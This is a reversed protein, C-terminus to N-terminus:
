ENAALEAAVRDPSLQLHEAVLGNRIEIIFQSIAAADPANARAEIALDCETDLGMSRNNLNASGIRLLRDDIALVKAHVYIPAGSDTVPQYIRLRGYRDAHALYALLRTRAARMAKDALWGHSRHAIIVVVEPGDREQLRRALAEGICRAAFYQGEVYIITQAAAIAALHLAEIERVEPRGRYAPETRAIAVNVNRLGLRLEAPWADGIRDPPARLEEGTARRWRERALAGLDAAAGGDVVMTADHFAGYSRGSPRVRLRDGDRHARTDWRDATMDIGGCFALADDIIVLKQHHSAGFPHASDLRLQFGRRTLWSLISFATSGRVFSGLLGINWQLVRVSLGSRREVLASLFPGLEEPWDPLPDTPDLKIRADFDWGIFMVSHEARLLAARVVRFYGAADIIAALRDARAIRWCTLGPQLLAADPAQPAASHQPHHEAPDLPKL